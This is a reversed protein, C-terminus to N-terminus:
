YSKLEKVFYELFFFFGFPPSLQIEGIVIEPPLGVWKLTSKEVKGVIPVWYIGLINNPIKRVILLDLSRM